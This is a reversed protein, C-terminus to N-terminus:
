EMIEYNLVSLIFIPVTETRMINKGLTVPIFGINVLMNEEENSLGGEPGLMIVIKDCNKTSQLVNKLSNIKEKTSCVIKLGELTLDSIKKINSLIPIDLRKSQESAEKCIKNWRILKKDEKDKLNVKSRETIVPIILDVGLETAKQLVFSFKQDSLLPICLTIYTSKKAKSEIKKLKIVNFNDDLKCIFLENRYVVEILDNSNMRMVTKIHYMDDNNLLFINDIKNNTFYRQM